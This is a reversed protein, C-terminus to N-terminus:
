QGQRWTCSSRNHKPLKDFKEKNEIPRYKKKKKKQPCNQFFMVKRTVNMVSSLNKISRKGQLTSENDQDAGGSALKSKSQKRKENENLLAQHLQSLNLEDGKATLAIVLTNYSRPLSLLLAVIHEDEPIAVKIAALQDTIVKLRRLHEELSDSEKMKLSFFKQKLFLKNM